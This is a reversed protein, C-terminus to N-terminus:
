RARREVDQPIAQAVREIGPRPLPLFWVAIPPVATSPSRRATSSGRTLSSMRAAAAAILGAIRAAEPGVQGIATSAPVDIRMGAFYLGPCPGADGAAIPGGKADLAPLRVWDLDWGYGTAWIVSTYGRRASRHTTPSEPVVYDDSDDHCRIM